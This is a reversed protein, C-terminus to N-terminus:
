GKQIVIRLKAPKNMTDSIIGELEKESVFKIYANCKQCTAKTHPGTEELNPNGEWGCRNCKM